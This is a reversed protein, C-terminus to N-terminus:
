RQAEKLLQAVYEELDFMPTGHLYTTSPLVEARQLVKVVAAIEEINEDLMHLASQVTPDHSLGAQSLWNRLADVGLTMKTLPNNVYHALTVVMKQVMELRAQETVVAESRDSRGPTGVTRAVTELLEQRSCPYPLCGSLNLRQPLGPTQGVAPITLIVPVACSHARLLGVVALGDLIPLNLGLLALDPQEQLLVQLGAAGDEATLVIYGAHTLPGALSQRREQDPEVILIRPAGKMCAVM